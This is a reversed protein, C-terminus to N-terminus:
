INISQPIASPLLTTYPTREMNRRGITLEIEILRNQFALLPERVRADGFYHGPINRDYDGLRGYYVGGLLSGVALQLAAEELPPLHQFVEERPIGSTVAPAPSFAALPMAPTFSMISSQPFNVAAHQVSATFIVMTVLDVLYGFT